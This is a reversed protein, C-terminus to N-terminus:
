RLAEDTLKGALGIYSFVDLKLLETKVKGSIKLELCLKEIFDQFDKKSITKGQTFEKLKEYPLEAGERRLITQVPEALIEYHEELDKKIKEKNAEVREIGRLTNTYALISYAFASGFNRTVSSDSLDRQLRSVMLKSSFFRFLSNAMGLNAESNELRIPNVKHPMTSSGIEDKKKKQTFYGLMIYLWLDQDLDLVVSNMRATLDFLEALHDYVIIQTTIICPELKLSKIFEKSFSIWDVDPFAAVHANYNGVAGNLKGYFKMGELEGVLDKLRSYFVAVEKGLTTPVAVQGHTRSLMVVSKNEKAFKKLGELLMKLKPLFIEHVFEKIQLTFALNKVDDSTLAFHVWEKLEKPLKGKIYYEIAKIDHNTEKEFELIKESDKIDFEEFEKRVKQEDFKVSLKKLLSVLYEVEVRVRYKHMAHESFFKSLEKVDEHYRGDIPTISSLRKM